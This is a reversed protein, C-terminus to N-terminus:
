KLQFKIQEKQVIIKKDELSLLSSRCQGVQQTIEKQTLGSSANQLLDIIQQQKAGLKNEKSRSTLQWFAETTLNANDGHRIKKPLAAQFCDGIPHHYYDSVWKILNFLETTVIPSSDLAKIIKKLKSTQIEDNAKLTNIVIGVVQRSGFPVLVRMGKELNTIENGPLYDFIQRLPCPIAIQTIYTM